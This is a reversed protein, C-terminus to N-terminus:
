SDSRVIANCELILFLPKVTFVRRLRQKTRHTRLIQQKGINRM